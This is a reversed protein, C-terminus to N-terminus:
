NRAPFIGNMAILHTIALYPQMISFPIPGGGSNV